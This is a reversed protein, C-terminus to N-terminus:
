LGDGLIGFIVTWDLCCERGVRGVDGGFFDCGMGGFGMIRGNGVEDKPCKAVPADVTGVVGTWDLCCERGVRGVDGGFFDCGWGRLDWFKGTASEMRQVSPLPRVVTGLGSLVEMGVGLAECWM